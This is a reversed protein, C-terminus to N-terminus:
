YVGWRGNLYNRLSLRQADSPVASLVVVEGFDVAAAADGAGRNGLTLGGANSAGADGTVDANNNVRLISSAGNYLVEIIGFAGVALSASNLAATTQARLNPTTGAQLLQTTGSTAGDWLRSGASWSRQQLVAAIYVPQNLAFAVQLFDDVGDGRVVVRGNQIAFKLALRKTSTSQSLHRGNGSKDTVGGIPDADASAATTRASDQFLTFLDSFDWWAALGSLSLPTFQATRGSLLLQRVAPSAVV